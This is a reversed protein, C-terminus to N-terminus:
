ALRNVPGVGTVRFYANIVCHSRLLQVDCSLKLM